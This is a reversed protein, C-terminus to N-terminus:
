WWWGRRRIKWFFEGSRNPMVSAGSSARRRSPPPSRSHPRGAARSHHGDCSVKELHTLQKNRPGTVRKWMGSTKARGPWKFGAPASKKAAAWKMEFNGTLLSHFLIRLGTETTAKEGQTEYLRWFRQSCLAMVVCPSRCPTYVARTAHFQTESRGSTRRSSANWKSQPLTDRNRFAFTRRDITRRCSSATSDQALGLEWMKDPTVVTKAIATSSWDDAPRRCLRLESFRSRNWWTLFQPTKDFLL